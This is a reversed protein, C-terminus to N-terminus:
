KDAKVSKNYARCVADIAAARFGREELAQVGEITTGGPSCVADKLQGPHLGTEVVMSAAGAVAQAAWELAKARPLGTKVAGDALAEIFLYAYAPTCGEIVMAAEAHAEDAVDVLGCGSFLDRLEKVIEDEVEGCPVIVMVGKGIACPTNPLIRIIPNARGLAARLQASSVGAAMSVIIQEDTLIPAIEELVSNIDKPKVGLVIYKANKAAASNSQSMVCGCEDVLAQAKRPSRNSIVIESPETMKCVARVIASGMNGTGLFAMTKM